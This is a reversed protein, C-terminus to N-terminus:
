RSEIEQKKDLYVHEPIDGNAFRKELAALRDAKEEPSLFVVDRAVVVRPPRREGQAGPLLDPRHMLLAVGWVSLAAVYGHTSTAVGGADALAPVASVLALVGAAVFGARLWGAVLWVPLAIVGVSLLRALVNALEPLPLFALLFSGLSCLIGAIFLKQQRRSAEPPDLSLLIYGAILSVSGLPRHWAGQERIPSVLTLAFVGLLVAGWAAKRM